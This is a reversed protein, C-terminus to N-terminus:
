GRFTRRRRHGIFSAEPICKASLTRGTALGRGSRTGPVGRANMEESNWGALLPVPPQKGAAFILLPPEPFFYADIAPAFRLTGPKKAAELIQAVAVARLV